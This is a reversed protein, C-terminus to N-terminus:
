NQVALRTGLVSPIGTTVAVPLLRVGTSLPGYGKLFQFSLTLVFIFGMLCYFPITVAGRRATFRLSKFYTAGHLPDRAWRECAILAVLLLAAAALGSISLGPSWGRNPAEIITYILIAMGASSLLLGPRDAPPAEPDRSTPVGIAVLVAAVAAFPVLSFF